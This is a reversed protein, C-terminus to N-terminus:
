IEITKADSFYRGLYIRQRRAYQRERTIWESRMADFTLLGALMRFVSQYGITQLGPDDATYGRARLMECEGIAGDRIRADVRAAIRRELQYTDRHLLSTVEVTYKDTLTPAGDSSILVRSGESIRRIRSQLRRPNSRDSENMEYYSKMDLEKLMAQLEKRSYHNLYDITDITDDREPSPTIHSHLLMRAYPATGGVVVPIRGRSTIERVVAEGDIAYRYSSYSQKPDLIDVLHIPIDTPNDTKGTIIDLLRYIQRSDCNVIEGGISKCLQSAYDTKGTATQGLVLYLRHRTMIIDLATM